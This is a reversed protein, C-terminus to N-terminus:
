GSRSVSVDAVVDARGLCDAAGGDDVNFARLRIPSGLVRGAGAGLMAWAGMCPTGLLLFSACVAAVQPLAPRDPLVFEAAAGLSILWAKPNVWQFLFAQWFGFAPRAVGQGPAGAAAIRWALLLLWAAMGWRLVSLLLPYAFLVGALGIGVLFLMVAFGVVVGLVHPVTAALGHNAASAAVMVNNPGPTISTAIAFGALSIFLPDM